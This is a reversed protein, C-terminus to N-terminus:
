DFTVKKVTITKKKTEKDEAVTGEVSGKKGAQCIDKHYKKGNAADFYVVDKETKLVTTCKTEVKLDCKACTITGKLTVEKDQAQIASVVVAMFVGLMALKIAKM